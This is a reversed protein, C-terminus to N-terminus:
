IKEQLIRMVADRDGDFQNRRGQPFLGAARFYAEPMAEYEALREADIQEGARIESAVRQLELALALAAAKLDSIVSFNNAPSGENACTAPSIRAAQQVRETLTKTTM